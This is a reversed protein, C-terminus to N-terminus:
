GSVLFFFDRFIAPHAPVPPRRGTLKDLVAQVGDVSRPGPLGKVDEQGGIVVIHLGILDFRLLPLGCLVNAVEPYSNYIVKEVDDSSKVYRGGLVHFSDGPVYDLASLSYSKKCVKYKNVKPM